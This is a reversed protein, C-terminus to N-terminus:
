VNVVAKKANRVAQISTAESRDLMVQKKQTFEESDEGASELLQAIFEPGCYSQPYEEHVKYLDVSFLGEDILKAVQERRGLKNPYPPTPDPARQECRQAVGELYGDIVELRRNLEELMRVNAGQNNNACIM